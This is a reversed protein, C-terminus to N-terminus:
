FMRSSLRSRYGIIPLPPPPAARKLLYHLAGEDADPGDDHLAAPAAPSFALLQAISRQM